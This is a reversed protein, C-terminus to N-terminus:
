GAVQGHGLWRRLYAAQGVHYGEHWAMFALTGSLKGDFSPIKEPGPAALAEESAEELAASLEAKVEQWAAVLEEPSPYKGADGPNSGREFL